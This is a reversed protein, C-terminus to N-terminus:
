TPQSLQQSGSQDASRVTVARVTAALALRVTAALSVLASGSKCRPQRTSLRVLAGRWKQGRISNMLRKQLERAM